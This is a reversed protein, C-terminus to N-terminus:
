LPTDIHSLTTKLEVKQSMSEAEDRSESTVQEHDVSSCHKDKIECEEKQEIFFSM